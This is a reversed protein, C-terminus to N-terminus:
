LSEIIKAMQEALYPYDYEKSAERARYCMAQYEETSLDLISCISNAYEDDDKMDHCVGINYKDIPSYLIDVNGVIPRGAAMYQFMKSSSIGYEGFGKSYNLINLYSHSLVFPVFKPDIWKDKFKLNTLQHEEAYKMLPERDQGNGYILFDVDNRGRLLEAAKVFQGVNNALRVAGLYIIHKKDPKLDEDNVTYRNLWTDFDHLDVGNNIYYIKRLDIPGGQEKDWKKDKLYEFCGEPSFVAADAEAYNKKARWFLYKMIPNNARIFGYKVFNDPYWDFTEKIYKIGHRKCYDLIPNSMFPTTVDIVLDPKEFKDWQRVLKYHFQANSLLRKIGNKKYRM